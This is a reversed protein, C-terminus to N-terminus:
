PVWGNTKVILLVMGKLFTETDNKPIKKSKNCIENENVNSSRKISEGQKNTQQSEAEEPEFADINENQSAGPFATARISNKVEGITMNPRHSSCAEEDGDLDIPFGLSMNSFLRSSQSSQIEEVVDLPGEAFEGIARDRGFIEEWDVFMSWKKTDMSKANPDVKLFDDWFKPDNVIIAGDSYQFRLGSQSKLMAISAYCKKWYRTNSLVHPEGKFGSNPHHKRLYCELEKLYGPRFTGNDSRWGNICLEKLEDILTREEVATWTRRTSPISNRSRKSKHSSTQSSM